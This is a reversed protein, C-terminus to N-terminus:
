TLNGHEIKGLYDIVSHIGEYTFLQYFPTANQYYVSPSKLWTALNTGFIRSGKEILKNFLHLREAQLGDFSMNAKAYRLLTRESIYLLQAWDAMSFNINRQIKNFQSFSVDFQPVAKQPIYQLLNGVAGVYMVAPEEVVQPTEVDKNKYHQRSM